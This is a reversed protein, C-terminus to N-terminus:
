PRDEGARPTETLLGLKRCLREYARSLEWYSAPVARVRGVLVIDFGQRLRPQSLRYIERLRRRVRNRRVANGLRTGVTIGLRNRGLRNPRCYVVLLPSVSSRGKSYVRRFEFNKKLTGARKM